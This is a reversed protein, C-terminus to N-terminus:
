LRKRSQGQAMKENRGGSKFNMRCIVNRQVITLFYEGHPDGQKCNGGREGPVEPDEWAGPTPAVYRPCAGMGHEALVRLLMLDSGDHMLFLFSGPPLRRRRWARILQPRKELTPTLCALDAGDLCQLRASTIYVAHGSM